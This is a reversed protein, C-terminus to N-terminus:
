VFTMKGFRVQKNVVPTAGAKGRAVTDHQITSIPLHSM